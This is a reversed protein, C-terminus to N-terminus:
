KPRRNVLLHDTDSGKALEICASMDLSRHKWQGQHKKFGQEELFSIAEERSNCQERTTGLSSTIVLDVKM